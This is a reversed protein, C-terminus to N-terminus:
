HVHCSFLALRSRKIIQNWDWSGITQFFDTLPSLLWTISPWSGGRSLSMVGGAAVEEGEEKIKGEQLVVRDM